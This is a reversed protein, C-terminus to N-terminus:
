LVLWTQFDNKPDCPWQMLDSGSGGVTDLCLDTGVHRLQYYTVGHVVRPLAEWRESTTGECFYEDVTEGPLATGNNVEVCYGSAHNQIYYTNAPWTGVFSWYQSATNVYGDLDLDENLAAGPADVTETYAYNIVHHYGSLDQAVVAVHPAEDQAPADALCGAVSMMSLAAALTTWLGPKM